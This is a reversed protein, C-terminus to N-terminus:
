RMRRKLAAASLRLAEAEKSVYVHRPWGHAARIQNATPHMRAWHADSEDLCLPCVLDESTRRRLLDNGHYGCTACHGALREPETADILDPIM